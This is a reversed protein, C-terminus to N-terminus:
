DSQDEDFPYRLPPIHIGRLSFRAGAPLPIEGERADNVLRSFATDDDLVDDRCPYHNEADCDRWKSLDEELYAAINTILSNINDYRGWGYVGGEDFGFPEIGVCVRLDEHIVVSHVFGPYDKSLERSVAVQHELSFALQQLLEERNM